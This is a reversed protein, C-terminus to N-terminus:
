HRINVTYARGDSLVRQYVRLYEGPDLRKYVGDQYEVPVSWAGGAWTQAAELEVGDWLESTKGRVSHFCSGTCLLAAGAAADYAWEMSQANDPYRTNENSLVPGAWIEMANHGVKRQWEFANNTHFTAYNWYPSVPWDESGNSGHSAVLGEPYAYDEIHFVRGAYDPENTNVNLENVLEILPKPVCLLAADCLQEWHEPDNIGTYACFEVYLGYSACLGVFEPIRSYDIDLFTGIGEIDYATWVRLLNFGIQYRQNLIPIINEGHQWRNLLNFDSCQIATWYAGDDKAFFGGRVVLELMDPNPPEVLGLEVKLEGLHKAASQDPSLGAAIDYATRSSWRFAEWNIGQGAQAYLAAVQKEFEVWWTQEDPYPYM